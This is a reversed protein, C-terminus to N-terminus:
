NFFEITNKGQKKAQYMATDAQKIIAKVSISADSFLTIGISPTSINKHGDIDIISNLALKIKTALQIMNEKAEEKNKGICDTLVIFEDGGIRSVTDEERITEKLKKAVQILLKDGIDHGLTDNVEKFNDLDIFVLGGVINHRVVKTIAHEIRDLLLLRNPLATLNDHTAQYELVKQKDKQESIDIYQALYHSIFGKNDKIATITSRLPILKKNKMTNYIEGSWSGKEQIEDWLAHYFQKDHYKSKFMNPNKGLIDKKTYGMVNCFAQNANIISVHEDTILMPENTEFAYSAIRLENAQKRRTKEYEIRELTHTMDNIMNNFLIEIEKDFFRHENSYLVLVAVIKGFKRIPFAAASNLDYEKAVDSLISSNKTAFSDIIINTKEKIVQSILNTEGQAEQLKKNVIDKLPSQQTFLKVKNKKNVKYIFGFSMNANESILECIKNFLIKEKDIKILFKNTSNLLKYVNQQKTIKILSKQENFIINRLLFLLSIMTVFSVFLFTLSFFQEIYANNEAEKAEKFIKTSVHEYVDGLADIRKTSFEWWSEVKLSKNQIYQPLNTRITTLHNVISLGIKDNYYSVEDISAKLLFQKLNINQIAYNQLLMKQIIKNNSIDALYLSTLAREIGAKEKAVLLNNLYSFKRSFDTSFRVPAITFITELLAENITNYLELSKLPLITRQHISERLNELAFFSSQVKKLNETMSADDFHINLVTDLYQTYTDNTRKKQENLRVKFKNSSLYTVSYGREKQMSHILKQTAQIYRINNQITDVESLTEIKEYVLKSSFYLMGIAPLTFVLIIKLFLANKFM